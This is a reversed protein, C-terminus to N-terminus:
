DPHGVPQIFGIAACNEPSRKPAATVSTRTVPPNSRTPASTEPPPATPTATEPEREGDGVPGLSACGAVVLLLAVLLAGHQPRRM